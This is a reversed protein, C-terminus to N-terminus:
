LSLIAKSNLTFIKWYRAVAVGIFSEWAAWLRSSINEHHYIRFLVWQILTEWNAELACVMDTEHAFVILMGEVVFCQDVCAKCVTNHRTTCHLVQWLLGELCNTPGKAHQKKMYSIWMLLKRIIHSGIICLWKLSVMGIVEDKDKGRSPGFVTGITDVYMCLTKDMKTMSWYMAAIIQISEFM